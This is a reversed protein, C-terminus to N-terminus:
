RLNNAIEVIKRLRHNLCSKTINLREALEELTDESFEKRKIAVEKLNEALEDLSITNEIVSIAEIHKEVARMQKGINGLDCNRERNIKNAMLKNVITNTLELACATAGILVLFDKIEESNKLYVIFGEKRKTLKPVFNFGALMQSFSLATEYNSFGVELHYGTSKKGSTPITCTGAGLFLGKIFAKKQYENNLFSANLDANLVFEGNDEVLIECKKLINVASGSFVDLIYNEKKNLTDEETSIYVADLDFETKILYAIKEIVEKNKSYIEFGIEKDKRIISGSARIFATLFSLRDTKKLKGNIIENKVKSAFNM